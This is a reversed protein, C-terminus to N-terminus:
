LLPVPWRLRGSVRRGEAVAPSALFGAEMKQQWRPQGSHLDLALLRGDLDGIYVVGDLIAATADFAGNEAEWTWLVELRTPLRTGSVGQSQPDGRFVPWDGVPAAHAVQSTPSAAEAWADADGGAGGPLLGSAIVFAAVM